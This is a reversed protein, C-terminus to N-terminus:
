LNHCTKEADEKATEADMVEIQALRTASNNLEKQGADAPNDKTEAGNRRNDPTEDFADFDESRM